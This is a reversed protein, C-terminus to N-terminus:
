RGRSSFLEAIVLKSKGQYSKRTEVGKQKYLDKMKSKEAQQIPHESIQPVQAWYHLLDRAPKDTGRIDSSNLPHCICSHHQQKLIKIRKLIPQSYGPVNIHFVLFTAWNTPSFKEFCFVETIYFLKLDSILNAFYELFELLVFDSTFFNQFSM